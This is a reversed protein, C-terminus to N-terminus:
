SEKIILDPVNQQFEGAWYGILVVGDPQQLAILKTEHLPLKKSPSLTLLFPFPQKIVGGKQVAEWRERMKSQDDPSMFSFLQDIHGIKALQQSLVTASNDWTLRGTRPDLYYSSVVHTVHHKLLYVFNLLLATGSLYCQALLLPEGERLGPIFLPGNRQWSYYIVIICFSLFSLAGLQNGSLVPIAIMIMVPICALSFLFAEGRPGGVPQHFVYVASICLLLWLVAGSLGKKLVFSPQRWFLGMVITTLLITGVVNASWWIWLTQNFNVEHRLAVWGVGLAAAIASTILTASFWIVLSYLMDNPRTFHRVCWAIAFDNSLSILSHILSTELSHRMTVDLLTRALFLGLFLWPWHRRSTLLFASVALGAPFWVFSVRSAPDDLFLSIYGLSYYLACWLLLPILFRVSSM